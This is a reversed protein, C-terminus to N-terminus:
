RTIKPNKKEGKKGAGAASKHARVNSGDVGFLEWDIMGAEDLKAQLKELIRDWTGDKSWTNFRDYVTKWKGSREPMDRWPAGTYLHWLIGDIIPRHPLPDRGVEGHNDPLEDKILEWQEDTLAHRPM